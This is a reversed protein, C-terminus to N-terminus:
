LSFRDKPQKDYGGIEQKYRALMIFAEHFNNQGVYKLCKNITKDSIMRNEIIVDLLSVDEKEIVYQIVKIINRKLYLQYQKDDKCHVFAQKLKDFDDLALQIGRNIAELIQKYDNKM